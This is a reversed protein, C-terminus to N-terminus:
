FQSKASQTVNEVRALTLEDKREPLVYVKFVKESTIAQGELNTTTCWAKLPCSKTVVSKINM